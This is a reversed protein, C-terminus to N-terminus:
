FGQSPRDVAALLNQKSPSALCLQGPLGGVKILLQLLSRVKTVMKVRSASKGGSGSGGDFMKAVADFVAVPIVMDEAFVAFFDAFAIIDAM